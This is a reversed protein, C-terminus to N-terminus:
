LGLEKLKGLFRKGMRNAAAKTGAHKKPRNHLFSFVVPKRNVLYGSDHNNLGYLTDDVFFRFYRM